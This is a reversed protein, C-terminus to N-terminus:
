CSREGDSRIACGREFRVTIKRGRRPAVELVKGKLAVQQALESFVLRADKEGGIFVQISCGGSGCYPPAGKTCGFGADDMIFDERGDGDLDMRRLFTAGIKAEEGQDKCYAQRDDLEAKIAAPWDEALAPAAIALLMGLCLAARM